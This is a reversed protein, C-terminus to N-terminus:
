GETAAAPPAVCAPEPWSAPDLLYIGRLAFRDTIPSPISHTPPKLLERPAEPEAAAATTPVSLVSAALAALVVCIRNPWIRSPILMGLHDWLRGPLALTATGRRRLVSLGTVSLLGPM